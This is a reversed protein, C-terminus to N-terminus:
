CVEVVSAISIGVVVVMFFLARLGRNGSAGAPKNEEKMPVEEQPAMGREILKQRITEHSLVPKGFWEELLSVAKRYSTGESALRIAWEKLHPSLPKRKEISLYQDLLYVTQRTKRDEYLRRQFTVEGFLTQLTRECLDKLRYRSKDRLEMIKEDMM